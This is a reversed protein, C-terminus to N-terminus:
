GIMTEDDGWVRVIVPALYYPQGDLDHEDLDVPETAAAVRRAEDLDPTRCIIEPDTHTDDWSDDSGRAMQVLYLPADDTYLGWGHDDAWGSADAVWAPAGSDLLAAVIKEDQAADGGHPEGLFRAIEDWAVAIAPYDKHGDSYVTKEWVIKKPM